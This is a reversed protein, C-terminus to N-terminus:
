RGKPIRLPNWRAARSLCTSCHKARPNLQWTALWVAGGDEIIWECLDRSMCESTGDGPMAPLNLGPAIAEVKGREFAQNSSATYLNLRSAVAAAQEINFDGNALQQAFDQLFPTYQKKLMSGVLGWDRPTMAARGGRAMMYQASYVRLLNTKTETLWQSITIERNFLRETLDLNLQEERALYEDRLERMNAPGLFRGSDQRRFRRVLADWFFLPSAKIALM